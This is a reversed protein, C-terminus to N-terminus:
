KGTPEKPKKLSHFDFRMLEERQLVPATEEQHEKGESVHCEICGELIIEKSKSSHASHCSICSPSKDNGEQIAEGHRSSQYYQYEDDHCSGCFSGVQAPKIVNDPKVSNDEAFVHGESEGHCERCFVGAGEHAGGEMEFILDVHCFFCPEEADQDSCGSETDIVLMAASMILLAIVKIYRVTM